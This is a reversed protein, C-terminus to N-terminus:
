TKNSDSQLVLLSDKRDSIAAHIVDWGAEIGREQLYKALGPYNLIISVNDEDPEFGDETLASQIDVNAWHISTIRDELINDVETFRNFTHMLVNCANNIADIDAQMLNGRNHDKTHILKEVVEGITM